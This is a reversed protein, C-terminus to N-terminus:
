TGAMHTRARQQLRTLLQDLEHNDDDDGALQIIGNVLEAIVAETDANHLVAQYAQGDQAIAARVLAVADLFGEARVINM